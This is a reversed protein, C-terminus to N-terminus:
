TVFKRILNNTKRLPGNVTVPGLPSEDEKELEIAYAFCLLTTFGVSGFM